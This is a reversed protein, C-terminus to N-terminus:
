IKIKLFKNSFKLALRLKLLNGFAKEFIVQQKFGSFKVQTIIFEFIEGEGSDSFWCSCIAAKSSNIKTFNFLFM